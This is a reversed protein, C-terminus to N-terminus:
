PSSDGVNVEAECALTTCVDELDSMEFMSLKGRMRVLEEPNGTVDSLDPNKASDGLIGKLALKRGESKYMTEGAFLQLSSAVHDDISDNTVVDGIRLLSSVGLEEDCEFSRHSLYYGQPVNGSNRNKWFQELLSNAERESVLLYEGSPFRIIFDALRLFRDFTKVKQRSHTLVTEVFNGTCFIKNSWSLRGLVEVSLHTSVLDRLSVVPCASLKSISSTEFLSTYNWHTEKVPTMKEEEVEEEEEEELELELERECEEDAGTRLIRYSEGLDKCRNVINKIMVENDDALNLECGSCTTRDRHFEELSSALDSLPTRSVSSGYFSDLDKREDLLAHKPETSTAYFLGQDSWSSLGKWISKITNQMVWSLIYKTELSRKKGNLISSTKLNETMSSLSTRPEASEKTDVAGNSAITQLERYVESNAVIILSQDEHLKRMRGAGQMFKDKCMGRGLTQVAVADPRLKLDSGRCRPEDFLAFADKENIPSQSKPVCRGSRQLIVWEGKQSLSDNNFFVVGLLDDPLVGLLRNAVESNTYGALLAGSDILAHVPHKSAFSSQVYALIADSNSGNQNSIEQVRRVKKLITDLMKGNTALLQQWTEDETNWPLYQSVQLPLIRHNDNTGSFGVVQSGNNHALNWSNAVLRQPYQDMDYPLVCTSLWFDIARMSKKFNDCLVRVQLKNSLDIKDISDISEAEENTLRCRIAEFWKEYISRKANEGLKLLAVMAERVQHKTLGSGYYALTTFGIACDPHSFESRESTTDAGRFPVALRKKGGVKVGYDVRYRKMLCHILIDHALFGRLSLIDNLHEETLHLIKPDAEPDSLVKKIDDIICERNSGCGLDRLWKHRYPPNEILSKAVAKRFANLDCDKEVVVRPYHGIESPIVKIGPIDKTNIVTEILTQCAEWRHKGQPLSEVGGVAYILQYRHHLIEDVEDFVDQWDTDIISNLVQRLAPSGGNTQNTLYVEKCKLELSLRTEPSVVM